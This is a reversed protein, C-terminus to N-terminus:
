YHPETRNFACLTAFGGAALPKVLAATPRSKENTPYAFVYLAGDIRQPVLHVYRPSIDPYLQKQGGSILTVKPVVRQHWGEIEDIPYAAVVQQMTMTAPALAIVTGDFYHNDADWITLRRTVGPSLEVLGSNTRANVINAEDHFATLDIDLPTHRGFHAHDFEPDVLRLYAECFRQNAAGKAIVSIHGPLTKNTTPSYEVSDIPRSVLNLPESNCQQPKGQATACIIIHTATIVAGDYIPSANFTDEYGPMWIRRSIVKRKNIWLSFFAPPNGGGAGYSFAQERGGRVRITTGNALVCETRGAGSSASLGLDLAQPVRPYTPKAGDSISFRVLALNKTADCVLDIDKSAQDARANNSIILMLIPAFYRLARLPIAMESMHRTLGLCFTQLHSLAQTM